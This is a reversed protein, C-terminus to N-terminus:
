VMIVIHLGIMNLRIEGISKGCTEGYNLCFSRPMSWTRQTKPTIAQQSDKYRFVM